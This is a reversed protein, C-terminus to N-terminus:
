KLRIEIGNNIPKTKDIKVQSTVESSLNGALDYSRATITTIGENTIYFPNSYTTWDQVTAGSLKYEIRSIGSQTNNSNLGDVTIVKLTRNGVNDFSEVLYMGNNTVTETLSSSKVINGKFDVIYGIGSQSDSTTINITASTKSNNYTISNNITPSTKDINTITISNTAKNGFVDYAEFTYTGNDTVLYNTNGGSVFSGNPLKIRDISSQSDTATITLNINDKTWENTDKSINLIPATNDINTVTITRSTINGANDEVEFTYNGNNNITYNSSSANIYSGNPTKIRKIGSLTDNSSISVNFENTVATSYNLNLTPKTKDIKVNVTKSTEKGRNDLVTYEYTNNGEKTITDTYSKSNLVENGNPLEIKTIAFDSDDLLEYQLDKFEVRVAEGLSQNLGTHIWGQLNQVYNTPVTIEFDFPVEGNNSILDNFTINKVRTWSGSMTYTYSNKGTGRYSYGIGINANRGKDNYSILKLTGTVRFTKNVYSTYNPFVSSGWERLNTLQFGTKIRVDNSAKIDVSVDQNTWSTTSPSVLVEPEKNVNSVPVLFENYNGAKDMTKIVYSGNDSFTYSFETNTIKQGNPLIIWDVGSGSDTVTFNLTFAGNQRKGLEEPNLITTTPVDIDSSGTTSKYEVDNFMSFDATQFNIHESYQKSQDGSADYLKLDLINTSLLLPYGSNSINIVQWKIPANLYTGFTVEDGIKLNSAKVGNSFTYTPKINIAPVIGMKNNADANSCLSKNYQAYYARDWDQWITGGQLWWNYSTATTNNKSKAQATLPRNYSFNRRNLYWYCEYPTLLFVKDNDKKYSYGKYRTAVHTYNALFVPAYNNLHGLNGTGGLRAISDIDQVLVRRETIAIADKEAQTFSNLFGAEKDYANGGMYTSSPPNNTYGVVDKDSNLWERINSTTWYSSGRLERGYSGALYPNDALTIPTDGNDSFYSIEDNVAYVNMPTLALINTSLLLITILKRIKM